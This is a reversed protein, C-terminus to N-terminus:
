FTLSETLSQTVLDGISSNTSLLFGGFLCMVSYFICSFAGSQSYGGHVIVKDVSVATSGMMVNVTDPSM